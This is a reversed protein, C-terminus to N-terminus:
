GENASAYKTAYAFGGEWYNPGNDWQQQFYANTTQFPVSTTNSYASNPSLTFTEFDAVVTQAKSTFLGFALTMMTITKKM